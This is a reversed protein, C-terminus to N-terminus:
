ILWRGAENTGCPTDQKQSHDNGIILIHHAIAGDGAVNCQSTATCSHRSVLGQPCRQVPAVFSKAAGLPGGQTLKGYECCREVRLRGAGQHNVLFDLCGVYRLAERVEGLLGKERHAPGALM